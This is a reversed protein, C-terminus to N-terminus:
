LRRKAVVRGTVEKQVPKKEFRLLNQFEGGCLWPQERVKKEHILQCRRADDQMGHREYVRAAFEYDGLKECQEAAKVVMGLEAYLRGAFYHDEKEELAKACELAKEKDGARIYAMGELWLECVIEKKATTENM